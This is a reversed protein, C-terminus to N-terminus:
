LLGKIKRDVPDIAKLLGKEVTTARWVLLLHIEKKGKRIKNIALAILVRLIIPISKEIFLPLLCLHLRRPNRNLFNNVKSPLIQDGEQFLPQDPIPLQWVPIIM